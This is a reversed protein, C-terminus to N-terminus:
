LDQGRLILQTYIKYDEEAFCVFVVKEIGPMKKLCGRVTSIAIKAAQEKPFRYVGTSICPFAIIKIGKERAITM